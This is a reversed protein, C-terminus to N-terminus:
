FVIFGSQALHELVQDLDQRAPLLRLLDAKSRHGDLLIFIVREERAVMRVPIRQGLATRQPVVHVDVASLSGQFAPSPIRERSATSTPPYLDWFVHPQQALWALANDGILQEGDRRRTVQSALVNGERLVCTALWAAQELCVTPTLTLVGSQGAIQLLTLVKGVNETSMM